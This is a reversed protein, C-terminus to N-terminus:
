CGIMKLVFFIACVKVLFVVVDIAISAIKALRM